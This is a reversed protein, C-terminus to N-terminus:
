ILREYLLSIFNGAGWTGMFPIHQSFLKQGTVPYEVCFSTHSPYMACLLGSGLLIDTKQLEQIHGIAGDTSLASADPSPRLVDFGLEKGLFEEWAGCRAASADLFIRRSDMGAAKERFRTVTQKIEWRDKEWEPSPSGFTKGLAAVLRECGGIGYPVGLYWPIGWLNQVTEALVAAEPTVALVWEAHLLDQLQYRGDQDNLCAAGFYSELMRRIEGLDAAGNWDSESLGIVLVGARKPATGGAQPGMTRRVYEAAMEYALLCGQSEMGEAPVQDWVSLVAKVFPQQSHVVMRLDTGIIDSVPSSTVFLLGPRARVDIDRIAAELTDTDGFIVHREKMGTTYLNRTDGRIVGQAYHMTGEPGFEVLAADKWTAVTRFFGIRPSAPPLTEFVKM